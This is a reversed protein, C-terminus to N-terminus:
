RQLEHHLVLYMAHSWLLPKAPTGWREVWEGYMTPHLLGQPVQEPLDGNPDAQAEVWVLLERARELNGARAYYWGLWASLLIWEGGGYFSDELYRHVGGGQTVLEREMAEVTRVMRSDHVDFMAFPVGLWLLNADVAPNGVSKCFRGDVCAHREVYSRIQGCVAVLQDAAAEQGIGESSGVGGMSGSRWLGAVARLGGYVAALTSPHVREGWEEWCDHCPEQWFTTLYEVIAEFSERVEAWFAANGSLRVHEAVGWLYAGYGDLQHNGWPERGEHGDVTYRTHLFCDTGIAAGSKKAAFLAEIKGRHRLIARHVWRYFAAAEAHEGAVDMAYAVFTGDRLWAYRYTAFKPSALFAGSRAQGRRIVEISHRLGKM